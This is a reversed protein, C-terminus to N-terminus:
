PLPPATVGAQAQRTVQGRGLVWPQVVASELSHQSVTAGKEECGTLRKWGEGSYISVRIRQGCGMIIEWHLNQVQATVYDSSHTHVGFATSQSKRPQSEALWLEWNVLKTKSLKALVFPVPQIDSKAPERDRNRRM